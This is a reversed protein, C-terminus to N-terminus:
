PSLRPAAAAALRLIDGRRALGAPDGQQLELYDDPFTQVSVSLLKEGVLLFATEGTYPGTMGVMPADSTTYGRARGIGFSQVHHGERAARERQTELREATWGRNVLRVSVVFDYFCDSSTASQWGEPAVNAVDNRGTVSRIEAPPVLTCAHDSRCERPLENPAQGRAIAETRRSAPWCRSGSLADGATQQLTGVKATLKADFLLELKARLTRYVVKQEPDLDLTYGYGPHTAREVMNCHRLSYTMAGRRVSFWVSPLHMSVICANVQSEPIRRTESLRLRDILTTLERVMAPAIRGVAPKADRRNVYAIQGRHTVTYQEIDQLFRGSSTGFSIRWDTPLLPPLPREQGLVVSLPSVVLAVLWLRSTSM